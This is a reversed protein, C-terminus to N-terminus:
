KNSVSIKEITSYWNLHPETSFPAAGSQRMTQPANYIWSQDRGTVDAAHSQNLSAVPRSEPSRDQIQLAARTQLLMNDVLDGVLPTSPQAGRHSSISLVQFM